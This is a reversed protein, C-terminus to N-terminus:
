HEEDSFYQSAFKAFRLLTARTARQHDLHRTPSVRFPLNAKNILEALESRSYQELEELTPPSEVSVNQPLIMSDGNAQEMSYQVPQDHQERKPNPVSSNM